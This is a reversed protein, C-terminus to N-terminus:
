HQSTASSGPTAENLEESRFFSTVIIGKGYKDFHWKRAREFVRDAVLQMNCLQEYTPKNEIGLRKANDSKTAESYTM